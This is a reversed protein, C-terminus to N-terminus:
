SEIGRIRFDEFTTSFGDGQPAACTLGVQITEDASLYALRHMTYTTGDLSYHVEIASAQRTVRLWIAPPNHPLPVVSWDSYDRTVVTSLHQAGNVFEIGCKIWAIEDVRVMLGAQDYLTTYDGAFKVEAVFDGTVAQYFFHGDDRIFGYHTKRWLDTKADAVVTIKGDQASWRQPKNHWEM